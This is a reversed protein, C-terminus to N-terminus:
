KEDKKSIAELYTKIQTQYRVPIRNNDIAQAYARAANLVVDSFPLYAPTGDRVEGTFVNSFSEANGSDEAILTLQKGNIQSTSIEEGTLPPASAEDTTESAIKGTDTTTLEPNLASEQTGQM